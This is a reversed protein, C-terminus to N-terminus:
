RELMERVKNGLTTMAFPKALIAMGPDLHGNGVAANEAYGTIFLVRLDERRGRAADALQRGNMGGPLGVDTILLDIRRETDLIKMASPGDAAELVVHRSDTLVEAILMRVTAEDDVVLVTEGLGHDAAEATQAVEDEVSGRFRPLSLCMTTGKGIESYIRVQGGSQRVFGYIMSLGLGTGRGLPKTTFFPDFARAIVDPTMGTGTDTVCLSVYQGPPLERERAAREDLWKNATEITLKGGEPMADRANICLNLLASELQPADVRTPWLGGAGVVETEINPGMTRRVLDEMGAILRNMDTPRPDLTQRRSFALLRHTLAAARNASDAAAKLFREVDGLRGQEIRNQVRDLAGTIGQLLNNFDHAIGGTLQGVAEMKQAQRLAAETEQLQQTREVVRQELATNLDALVAAAEMQDQIDTNTGIWKEIVGSPGTVAVARTLHWRYAGDARRLRFQTEYPAGTRLSEEWKPLAAALDDPHVIIGWHIHELSGEDYGSYDYVRQNGWDLRGDPTATWVHNLMAQALTRFQEATARVQAEARRREVATRTREAVERVFALDDAPWERVEAHNLYLLAVLGGQESVPMNVLSRATIAILAEATDRTRPDSRADAITVTEGRKLNDIYSGYDRFQLVGAVSRVGPMNWDREITITEDAPDITGYGARSVQMVEGLIKAAEFQIEAPDDCARMRETLQALADRRIDARRAETVDVGEVFIGTVEGAGNRVPQYVLDLLRDESEGGPRRQLTVSVSQGRYSEGTAYLRDLLEIFGQGRIEPLADGLSKGVVDRHGILQLYSPNAFTFVHDPGDLQAMFSPSDRFMQALREREALMNREALVRETTEVVIAIVGGPKGGEDIVPSYDLNMWAPEPKGSRILVLEQDKYSLTGGALGVKMVNDNFDAVEPWGERVKSGLLQPHRGGAFRSYADNYIMIGDEGWLLVIPVPSNLLIGVTTKLSLPWQAIPGLSGSWDHGAILGALDGGAALFATQAGSDGGSGM